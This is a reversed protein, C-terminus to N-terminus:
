RGEDSGACAVEALPAAADLREALSRQYLALATVPFIAPYLTYDLLATEFFVGVRAPSPWAGDPGQLAALCHAARDLAARDPDQAEVLAMLAWATQVPHAADAEAWAAGRPGSREGFGGDARQHALLFACARRVAPDTPPLGAALLGRVGFLTGYVLRVGWAGEWAGDPRQARRLWRVASALARGLAAGDGAGVARVAALAAISSATCEVWSHDTMADGFMEAPNMWDLDLPGRAAEYSGFGGDRNQATLVFGAAAALADLTAPELRQARAARLALVAEATCDSVPWGQWPGGFCFGGRPDLRDARDLDPCAARVQQAALWAAGRELAPGVSAAPVSVDRALALAQLAFSTDWVASQAGTVRTGDVEDERIWRELRAVATAVDPDTPSAVHLALIDLLGSVPSIGHHATAHLEARVRARLSAVLRRRATPHHLREVLASAASLARFRRTPRAVLDAPAVLSRASSLRARDQGGPHLEARLALLTPTMAARPREAFLVAMPLYIMRTHCYLNRPHLASRRPLAWAEPLVPHLGQWDYLGLLALWLKGWSPVARAGGQARIFAGAPALLPSDPAEGLLRAAVYVLTTVFLSPQGEPHLAWRGCALRTRELQLRLLRRRDPPLPREIFQMAMVLQAALMPCWVVEGEFSGDPAQRRLLASVGHDLAAAPSGPRAPPELRRPPDAAGHELARRLATAREAHWSTAPRRRTLAAVLWGLRAAVDTAVAGAEALRGTALAEVSLERAAVGLARAFSAGFASPTVDACALYAMTQRRERPDDRWLTFVARRIALTEPSPDSFVEYLAVALLEPVRVQRRRRRAYTAVSPARALELADRLGLTMGAATFPHYHGVADGVLALGERGYGDRPRVQNAAWAVRGYLLARRFAPRLPEPLAPAFADWLAAPSPAPGTAHPVDLCLRVRDAGIRYALVPGPGGIFVHGYGEHPLEAGELVIGAMRSCLIRDAPYGLAGRVLSGRGDAGVVLGPSVTVEGSAGRREFTLRGPAVETVRAHDLWTIAADARAVDRVARVLDAHELSAGQAGRAYPLRHPESGDEPSVCFGLGTPWPPTVRVGLGELAQVAPPHLWEGALRGAARPNAELVLVRAGRRAFALATAAGVPGGGVIAVDPAVDVPGVVPEAM